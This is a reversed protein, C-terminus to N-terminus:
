QIQHDMLSYLLGSALTNFGVDLCPSLCGAEIFLPLEDNLASVAGLLMPLCYLENVLFSSRNRNAVLLKDNLMSLLVNSQSSFALSLCEILYCPTPLSSPYLIFYFSDFVFCSQQNFALTKPGEEKKARFSKNLGNM